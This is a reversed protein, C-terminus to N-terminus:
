SVPVGVFFQWHWLMWYEYPVPAGNVPVQVCLLWWVDPPLIM